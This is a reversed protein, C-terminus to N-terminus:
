AAAQESAELLVEDIQTLGAAILGNPYHDALWLHVQAPHWHPRLYQVRKRANREDNNTTYTWLKLSTLDVQFKEVQQHGGSGWIGVFQSYMGPINKIDDIATVTAPSFDFERAMDEYKSNQVGIFKVGVNGMLAHGIPNPAQQTGVIDKFAQTALLTLVGEKGGTRAYREIIATIQPYRKIIEWMEDFALLMKTWTGDPERHGESQIVRAAIRFAMSARVRESFNELGKLEYVDLPSDATFDPHTPADIFPDGRFTELAISLRARASDAEADNFEYVRLMELLHEHRPEHKPRGAGNRAVENAYVERVLLTLIDEAFTDNAEVRALSMADQVVYWIQLETPNLGSELGTYDWINITRRTQPNFTLHRGGLASVLPELSNGYDVARVRLKGITALANTIIECLLVSKGGRSGALLLGLPSPVETADFLDWGTLHRSPTSVLTHPRASGRWPSEMPTLRVLSATIEKFERGTKRADLEGPLAQHYMARLAEPQERGADAGPLKGFATTVHRCNRDLNEISRRLEDKNRAPDGYVVTYVRAEILSTRGGSMASRLNKIDSRAASADPDDQDPDPSRRTTAAQALSLSKSQSKLDGKAKDQDLTIFEIVDTHDCVLNPNASLQRMAAATIVPTPPRFLSVIAIPVRGHLLFEGDGKIEEACLYQRIDTGEIVPLEPATHENMRHGLYVARWLEEHTFPRIELPCMHEIAAFTQKAQAVCEAEDSVARETLRDHNTATWSSLTASAFRAIGRRRVEKVLAPFFATFLGLRARSPDNAHRAPIRIWCTLAAEQFRRDRAQAEFEALGMAHLMRAPMYSDKPSQAELHRKIARGPDAHVAHRFQIVVGPLKISALMRALENYNRDVVADEAYLTNELKIHYAKTYSGDIHRLLGDRTIGHISTARRAGRPQSLRRRVSEDTKIQARGREESSDRLARVEGRAKQGVRLLRLGLGLGLGGALMAAAMGIITFIDM